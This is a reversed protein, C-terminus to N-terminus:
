ISMDVYKVYEMFVYVCLCIGMFECEAFVYESFASM